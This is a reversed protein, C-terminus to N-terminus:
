GRIFDDGDEYDKESPAAKGGKKAQEENYRDIVWNLIARYDSAYKKGKSGKYNDLIEVLRKAGDVGCRNMLNEYEDETLSVFEAYKIKPKDPKKKSPAPPPPKEGPNEEENEGPNEGQFVKKNRWKEREKNVAGFRRQIGPSTLRGTSEYTGTDFLGVDFAANLMEGFREATVGVKASVASMKMASSIDLGGDETRYIRELLIFYFAYGDNGFTARMAEIKEDNAADVDHPFYDLGQKKPRAM